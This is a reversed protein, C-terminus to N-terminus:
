WARDGRHRGTREERDEAWESDSESCGGYGSYRDRSYDRHRRSRSDLSYYRDELWARDGRHRGTREEGPGLTRYHRSQHGSEFRARLDRPDRERRRSPPSGETFPPSSSRWGRPGREQFLSYGDELDSVPSDSYRSPPGPGGSLPPPPSFRDGLPGVGVGPGPYSRKLHEPLGEKYTTLYHWEAEEDLPSQSLDITVEGLFENAGFRDYDWVTVELVRTRLQGRKIPSYVFSQNWRPHNTNALTKTRRKSRESRDPLLFLKAYPNRYQGGTRPPLDVASLVTVILELRNRDYWTKVQLRCGLNEEPSMLRGLRPGSDLSSQGLAISDTEYGVRRGIEADRSVVLEISRDQRTSAIIDRVEEYSRSQLSRGNWELVEDGPLLRGMLDAVSTLSMM